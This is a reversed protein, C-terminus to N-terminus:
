VYGVSLDGNLTKGHKEVSLDGMLFMNKEQKEWGDSNNKKGWSDIELPIESGLTQKIAPHYL